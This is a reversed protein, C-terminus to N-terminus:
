KMLEILQREVEEKENGYMKATIYKYKIINEDQKLKDLATYIKETPYKCGLLEWVKRTLWSIKAETLTEYM